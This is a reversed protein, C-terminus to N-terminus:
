HLWCTNNREYVEKWVLDEASAVKITQLDEVVSVTKRSRLSMLRVLHREFPKPTSSQKGQGQSSLGDASKAYREVGDELSTDSADDPSGILDEPRLLKSYRKNIEAVPQHVQFSRRRAKDASTSTASMSQVDLARDSYSRRHKLPDLVRTITQQGEIVSQPQDPPTSPRLASPKPELGDLKALLDKQPKVYSLRTTLASTTSSSDARSVSEQTPMNHDTESVKLTPIENQKEVIPENGTVSLGSSELDICPLTSIPSGIGRRPIDTDSLEHDKRLSKPGESVLPLAASPPV